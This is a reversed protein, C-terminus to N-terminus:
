PVPEKRRRRARYREFDDFFPPLDLYVQQTLEAFTGLNSLDIYAPEVLAKAKGGKEKWADEVHWRAFLETGTFIILPNVPLGNHHRRRGWNALGVLRTKERSSFTDKLVSVAMFAGPLRAAVQKLHDVDEQTLAERGFSKAEGLVLAPEQSERFLSDRQYWLAFDVEVKSTGLDLELGTTWTMRRDGVGLGHALARLTLAVAYGGRAFNPTAFPGIVRYLWRLKKFEPGAQPFSFQKLCRTCTITYDLSTLDFWNRQACHPCRVELGARLVSSKTFAELGIWPMRRQRRQETFLTEWRRIPVARDPYNSEEVAGLADTRVVKTAAMEDLLRVIDEEAFLACSHLGGVSRIIQEAVRGADSPVATIKQESLWGTIADRGLQLRVHEGLRKHRQPFVWGERSVSSWESFRLRPYAPHFTNTPYVTALEDLNSYTCRPQIVNVWTTRGFWSHGELFEPSPTNFSVRLDDSVNEDIDSAMAALRVRQPRFVSNDDRNEWIADYGLTFNCSMQPLGQLHERALQEARDQSTSRSFEVKAHLMTGFPNGPIPRFNKVILDRILPACRDFWDIHILVVNREFLRLNWADILDQGDSPDFVFFTLDSHDSFDTELGARTFWHPTYHFEEMLTVFTDAAHPLEVPGYAEKYQREIYALKPDSPFIGVFVEFFADQKPPAQMIAFKEERKLQFKFEKHYRHAHIATIDVGSAFNVRGTNDTSIFEDLSVLRAVQSYREGPEWGVTKAVGPEAEVIV